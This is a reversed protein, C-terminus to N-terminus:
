GGAKSQRLDQATAAIRAIASLLARLWKHSQSQQARSHWLQYFRMAPFDIPAALVPPNKTTVLLDISRLATTTLTALASYAAKLVSWKM